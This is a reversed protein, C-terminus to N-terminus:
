PVARCVENSKSLASGFAEKKAESAKKTFVSLQSHFPVSKKLQLFNNLLSANVGFLLIENGAKL